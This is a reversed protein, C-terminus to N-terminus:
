SLMSASSAAAILPCPMQPATANSPAGGRAFQDSVSRKLWESTGVVRWVRSVKM